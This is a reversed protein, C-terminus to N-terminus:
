IVQQMTSKNMLYTFHFSGQVHAQHLHTTLCQVEVTEARFLVVFPVMGIWLKFLPVDTFESIIEEVQRFFDSM